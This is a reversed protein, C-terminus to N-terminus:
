PSPTGRVAHIASEIDDAIPVLEDLVGTEDLIALLRESEMLRRLEEADVGDEFNVIRPEELLLEVTRKVAPRERVAELSPHSLFRERLVPDDLVEQASSVLAMVRLEGVPNVAGVARGVQSERASEAWAVVRRAVDSPAVRGASARAVALQRAAMPELALVAWILLTALLGGEVVGLGAGLLKDYSRWGSREATLRRVGLSVGFSMLTAVLLGCVGVSVLRGALGTVGSVSGVVGEMLRGLPVALLMALLMGAVLSAVRVMGLWYGNLAAVVGMLVFVRTVANGFVLALLVAVGLVGAL